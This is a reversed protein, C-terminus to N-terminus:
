VSNTQLLAALKRKITLWEDYEGLTLDSMKKKRYHIFRNVLETNEPNSQTNIREILEDYTM